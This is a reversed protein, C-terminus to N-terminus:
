VAYLVYFLRCTACYHSFKERAYGICAGGIGGGGVKTPAIPWM